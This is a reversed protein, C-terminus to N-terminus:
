DHGARQSGISQLGGPEETWPIRWAPICSHAARSEELPEERDFGARQHRQLRRCQCAPEKGSTGGPFGRAGWTVLIGVEWAVYEQGRSDQVLNKKQTDSQKGCVKQEGYEQWLKRRGAEKNGEKEQMTIKCKLPWNLREPAKPPDNIERHAVGM